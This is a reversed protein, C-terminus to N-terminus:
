VKVLCLQEGTWPFEFWSRRGLEFGSSELLRILEDRTRWIMCDWPDVHAGEDLGPVAEVILFGGPKLVRWAESIAKKLDYAHDWSNTFVVDYTGDEWPLDHFDGGWVWPNDEGPNLDIGICSCGMDRFALVEAGSRAGLCLVEVGHGLFELKELRERLVELFKVHYEALDVTGLKSAQHTVYDQYSAYSRQRFAGENGYDRWVARMLEAYNTVFSSLDGPNQKRQPSVLPHSDLDLLRYLTCALDDSLKSVENGECGVMQEYTVELYPGSSFLRRFRGIRGKVWQIQRLVWPVDVEIQVPECEGYSHHETRGLDLRRRNLDNSVERRVHDERILHIVKVEQMQLWLIVPETIQNYMLRCVRVPAIGGEFFDKLAGVPYPPMDRLVEGRIEVDPHSGLCEELLKTGARQTSLIVVRTPEEPDCLKGPVDLNRRVGYVVRGTGHPVDKVIDYGLGVLKDGLGLYLSELNKYSVDNGFHAAMESTHLEVAWQGALRFFRKDLELLWGEGGECDSKVVDPKYANLLREWDRVSSVRMQVADLGRARAALAELRKFLKPDAEVAVVRAAGRELFFDATSGWDAGVDLVTKGEVHLWGWHDAPDMDGWPKVRM